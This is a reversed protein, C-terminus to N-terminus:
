NTFHCTKFNLNCPVHWLGGRRGGKTMEASTLNISAIEKQLRHILINNQVTLLGSMQRSLCIPHVTGKKVLVKLATLQKSTCTNATLVVFFKM